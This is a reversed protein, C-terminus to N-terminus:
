SNVRNRYWGQQEATKIKHCNACLIQCKAIEKLINEWSLTSAIARAISFSKTKPDIHDFELVRIDTNGCSVCGKDSLYQMMQGRLADKIRRSREVARERYGSGYKYYHDRWIQRRKLVYCNKCQAHLKEALKNRYFFEQESKAVGCISCIKM